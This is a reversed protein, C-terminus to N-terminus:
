TLSWIYEKGEKDFTTVSDQKRLNLLDQCPIFVMGLDVEVHEHLGRVRVISHDLPIPPGTYKGNNLVFRKVPYFVVDNTVFEKRGEEDNTYNIVEVEKSGLIEIYPLQHPSKLCNETYNNVELTAIFDGVHPINNCLQSVYKSEKAYAIVKEKRNKETWIMDVFANTYKRGELGYGSLVKHIEDSESREIAEQIKEYSLDISQSSSSRNSWTPPLSVTPLLFKKDSSM